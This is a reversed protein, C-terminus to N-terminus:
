PLIAAPINSYWRKMYWRSDLHTAPNDVPVRANEALAVIILGILALALSVRVELHALLFAAVVSLQTSGAVLAVTFVLMIM